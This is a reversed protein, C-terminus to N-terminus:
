YFFVFFLLINRVFILHTQWFTKTIFFFILWLFYNINKHCLNHNIKVGFTFIIGVCAVLSRWVSPRLVHVCFSCAVFGLCM